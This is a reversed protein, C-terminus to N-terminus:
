YNSGSCAEMGVICSPLDAFLQPVVDRRLTKRLVANDQSDVGHAELINKALDTGILIIGM